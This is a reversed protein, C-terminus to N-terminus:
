QGMLRKNLLAVQLELRKIERNTMQKNMSIWFLTYIIGITVTCVVVLTAYAIQAQPVSTTFFRYVSWMMILAVAILKFWALFFLTRYQGKFTASVDQLVTAEDTIGVSGTADRLAQEIKQDLDKM